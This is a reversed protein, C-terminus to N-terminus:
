WHRWSWESPIQVQHSVTYGALVETNILLSTPSPGRGAGLDQYNM